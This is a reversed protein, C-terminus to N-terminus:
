DGVLKSFTEYAEAVMKLKVAHPLFYWLCGSKATLLARDLLDAKLHKGALKIEATRNKNSQEFAEAIMEDQPEFDEDEYDNDMFRM